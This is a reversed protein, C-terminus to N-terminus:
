ARCLPCVRLHSETNYKEDQLANWKNFANCWPLILPYDAEWKGYEEDSNIYEEEIEPYPFKPEGETDGYYCRKFCDLCTFHECRPQSVGRKCDDLCVPCEVNDKFDLTGKGRCIFTYPSTGFVMQCSLCLEPNTTDLASKCLEFNKCQMM